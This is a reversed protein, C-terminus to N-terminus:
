SSVETLEGNFAKQLISQKLEELSSLKKTYIQELQKTQNSLHDLKSVILKQYEITPVFLSLSKIFPLKVGQVTAGTGEKVIKHSISKLWHYIYPVIIRKKNKPIIGRLDQNIATDNEILCVKGLGVRTAIIVNDKPIINTSSNKVAESTIKCETDSIIENKMDRVTAWNINGAYYSENKKSPTGGGILDCIDGLKTEEWGEGKNEFVKQLYSEFVEKANKLNQESNEKAKAIKEFASDLIEVIKKQIPLPPVLIEINQIDSLRLSPYNQDQMLTRADIGLSFYFLYTDDLINEKAKITALHSSVYGDIAMVVRHNLFTSAGSKPFLLTGKKFLKLKQIGKDNLYDVSEEIYGTRIKGIDSTRIFPHKGNEFLSKDQPASNGAGIECVEGLKKVEWTM